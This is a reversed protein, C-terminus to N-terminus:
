PADSPGVGNGVDWIQIQSCKGGPLTKLPGDATRKRSGLPHLWWCGSAPTVEEGRAPIHDLGHRAPSEEAGALGEQATHAWHCQAILAIANKGEGLFLECCGLSLKAWVM